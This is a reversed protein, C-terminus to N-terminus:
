RCDVIDPPKEADGSAPGPQFIDIFRRLCDEHGKHAEEITWHIAMPMQSTTM